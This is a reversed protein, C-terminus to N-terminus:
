VSRTTPTTGLNPISPVQIEMASRYGYGPPLQGPPVPHDRRWREFERRL